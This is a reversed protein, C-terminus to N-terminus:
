KDQLVSLSAYINSKMPGVFWCKQMSSAKVEYPNGAHLLLTEANVGWSVVLM